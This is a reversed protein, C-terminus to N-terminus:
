SISAFVMRGSGTRFSGGLLSAELPSSCLSSADKKKERKRFNRSCMFHGMRSQLDTTVMELTTKQLSEGSEARSFFDQEQFIDLTAESQQNPFSSSPEQPSPRFVGDSCAPGMAEACARECWANCLSVEQPGAQTPVHCSSHMGLALFQLLRDAPM